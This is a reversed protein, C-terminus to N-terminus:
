TIDIELSLRKSPVFGSRHLFLMLKKDSWDVLTHVNTVGLKKMQAIFQEVLKSGVGKGGVSPHIGITDLNATTEPIGFEGTYLQGMIFGILRGEYEAVLSTNIGAGKTALNLKERYYEPRPTGFYMTDINTIEELDEEKMVRIEIKGPDIEKISM